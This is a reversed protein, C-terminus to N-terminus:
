ENHGRKLQRQFIDFIQSWSKEAAAEQYVPRGPFSYGHHADPHNEVNFTAMCTSTLYGIFEKAKDPPLAYDHEAFGFYIEGKLRNLLRHPSDQAETIMKTGFLSGNAIFIEPFHAAVQVVFRGGMCFGVSGMEGDLALSDSKIFDLVSSVDDIVNADSLSELVTKRLALVHQNKSDPDIVIKGLRYYLDPLVCYYGNMAVRDAMRKLLESQGGVNHYMFVVPLPKDSELWSIYVDMIGSNTKIKEIKNQM